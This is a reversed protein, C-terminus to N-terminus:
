AHRAAGSKPKATVKGEGVIHSQVTPHRFCEAPPADAIVSGEFFALVRAAHRAVIDMDHEVFMVTVDRATLADMVIAMLEQKEDMSVGSTPEDLLLMKPKPAMAMAIDLLKRVGQPLEATKQHLYDGIRFGRLLAECRAVREDTFPDSMLSWSKREAVASALVLNDIASRSGFVQPVQFSRCMGLRTMDRPRRGLTSRGDFKIDGSTPQLWGTVMNVFTTKGAGNTGIIAVIEQPAVTINIDRAASVQGFRKELNTVNLLASM